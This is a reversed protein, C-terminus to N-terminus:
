KLPCTKTINILLHSSFLMKGRFRMPRMRRRRQPRNDWDANMDQETTTTTTTTAPSPDTTIMFSSGETYDHSPSVSNASPAGYVAGSKIFAEDIEDPYNLVASEGLLERAAHDYARAAAEETPFYGLRIEAGGVSLRAKWPNKV